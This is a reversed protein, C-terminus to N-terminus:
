WATPRCAGQRGHRLLTARHEAFLGIEEFSGPDVLADVRERATLKGQQHQKALRDAGGGLM